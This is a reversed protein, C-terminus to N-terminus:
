LSFSVGSFHYIVYEVRHAKATKSNPALMPTTEPKETQETANLAVPIQPLFKM